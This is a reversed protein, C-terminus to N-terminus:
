QKGGDITAITGDPLHTLPLVKMSRLRSQGGSPKSDHCVLWWSGDHEVVCHHTTWGTVPTLIEGAYTFPGYPSDGVAYCILHTSGTSYSFYYRGNYKHLWSAEYYRHRDGETFPKGDADLIAVERPEEALSVMDPALKAVRPAAAPDNKGPMGANPDYTNGRYNQLQGGSLGGFYIYYEGNEAYVAPDISYTGAIPQPMVEFPGAPHDAVAAGIRFLGERDRATFYFYYKGDKEAADAAWLQRAAWPVDDISFIQGHDTVKGTLVDGDISFVHYDRMDYHNGEAKDTVPSDWDHSPYIYIKGQFVHAAPDAMYDEPWLYREAPKATDPAEAGFSVASGLLVLAGCLTLKMNM